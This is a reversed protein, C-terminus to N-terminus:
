GGGEAPPEPKAAMLTAKVAELATLARKSEVDGLNHHSYRAEEFIDVLAGM